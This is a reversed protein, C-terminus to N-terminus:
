CRVINNKKKEFTGFYLNTDIDCNKSRRNQNHHNFINEDIFRVNMICVFIIFYTM